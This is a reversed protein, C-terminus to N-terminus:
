FKFAIGGYYQLGELDVSGATNEFSLTTKNARAGTYIGFTETFFIDIGARAYIGAGFGSESRSGIEETASEEPETERSAWILLPGAGVTLKLWKAPRLGLYGGFFYDFIISNVDVSISAQGGESGSSASFSRVDTDLSFLAGTELGYTVPGDDFPKQVDAGFINILYDGGKMDPDDNAIEMKGYVAHGYFGGNSDQSVAMGAPLLWLLLGIIIVACLKSGLARANNAEKPAIVAIKKDTSSDCETPDAHTEDMIDDIMKGGISLVTASEAINRNKESM